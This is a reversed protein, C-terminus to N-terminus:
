CPSPDFKTYSQITFHGPAVGCNNFVQLMGNGGENFHIVASAVAVELTRRAVFM